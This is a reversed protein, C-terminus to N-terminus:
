NVLRHYKVVDAGVGRVCYIQYFNPTPTPHKDSCTSQVHSKELSIQMIKRACHFPPLSTLDCLNRRHVVWDLSFDINYISCGSRQISILYESQFPKNFMLTAVVESLQFVLHECFLWCCQESKVASRIEDLIFINGADQLVQTALIWM